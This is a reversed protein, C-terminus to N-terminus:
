IPTSKTEIGEVMAYTTPIKIKAQTFELTELM